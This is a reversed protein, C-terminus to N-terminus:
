FWSLAIDVYISSLAGLLLAPRCSASDTFWPCLQGWQCPHTLAPMPHPGVALLGTGEQGLCVLLAQCVRSKRIELESLVPAPLSSKTSPISVRGTLNAQPRTGTYRAGM